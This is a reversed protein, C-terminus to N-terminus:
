VISWFPCYRYSFPAWLNHILPLLKAEDYVSYERKENEVDVRKEDVFTLLSNNVIELSLNKIGTNRHSLFHKLKELIRFVITKEVAMPANADLADDRVSTSQIFVKWKKRKRQM